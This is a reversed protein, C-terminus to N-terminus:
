SERSRHSTVSSPAGSWAFTELHRRLRHMTPFRRLILDRRLGLCISKIEPPQSAYRSAGGTLDRLIRILDAIDDRRVEAPPSSWDYLDLVKVDFYIGRPRILINEAHLDGHYAGHDHIEALHPPDTRHICLEPVRDDLRTDGLPLEGVVQGFGAAREEDVHGAGAPLGAQVAQLKAPITPFWGVSGLRARGEARPTVTVSVPQGNRLVTVDLKQDPSSAILLELDGVELALRCPEGWWVLLGALVALCTPWPGLGSGRAALWLLGPVLLGIAFLGMKYASPRFEEGGVVMALTMFVEAPRSGSDFIPTKPYGAQFAPDYCCLQGTTLFTKLRGWDEAAM